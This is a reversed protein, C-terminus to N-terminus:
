KGLIFGIKGKGNIIDDYSITQLGSVSNSNVVQLCYSGDFGFSISQVLVQHDNMAFVVCNGQGLGQEIRNGIGILGDQSASYEEATGFSKLIYDEGNTHWQTGSSYMGTVDKVVGDDIILNGETGYNLNTEWDNFSLGEGYLTRSADNLSCFFCIGHPHNTSTGNCSYPFPIRSGNTQRALKSVDTDWRDENWISWEDRNKAIKSGWFMNKGAADAKYYGNLAGAAFGIAASYGWSDFFYKGNLSNSVGNTIIGAGAGYFGGSLIGGPAFAALGGGVCATLGAIAATRLVHNFDVNGTKFSQYTIDACAAITMAIIVPIFFCNGSPDTYKLPNNLCYTYRNYNQPNDPSQVYNDTSLFRGLAPDYLRGNMNILAFDTLHEHGTYGRPIIDLTTTVTYDSWDIPNRMRGWADYSFRAAETTTGNEQVKQLGVISGQRDTQVYYLLDPQNTEKIYVAFLGTPATLYHIEKINGTAVNVEKEYSGCYFRKTVAGSRTTTMLRRENDTGYIFEASNMGES